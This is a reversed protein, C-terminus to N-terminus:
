FARGGSEKRIDEDKYINKLMVVEQFLIKAEENIAKRVGTSHLGWAAM